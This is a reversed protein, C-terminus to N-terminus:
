TTETSKSTDRSKVLCHNIWKSCMSFWVAKSHMWLGRRELWVMLLVAVFVHAFFHARPQSSSMRPSRLNVVCSIGLRSDRFQACVSFCFVRKQKSFPSCNRKAQQRVCETWRVRRLCMAHVPIYVCVCPRVDYVEQHQNRTFPLSSESCINLPIPLVNMTHKYIKSYGLFFM